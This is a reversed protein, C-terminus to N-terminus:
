SFREISGFSPSRRPPPWSGWANTRVTLEPRVPRASMSFPANSDLMVTRTSCDRWSPRRLGAVRGTGFWESLRSTDRALGQLAWAEENVSTLALGVVRVGSADETVAVWSLDSRFQSSGTFQAWREEVAPQSGWRDRFADNRALRTAEFLEPTCNVIHIGDIAEFAPVPEAVVRQMSTFYRAVAFGAREALSIAPTNGARASFFTATRSSQEM